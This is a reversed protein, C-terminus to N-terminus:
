GVPGFVVTKSTRSRELDISLLFGGSSSSTACNSLWLLKGSPDFVFSVSESDCLESGFGPNASLTANLVITWDAAPRKDWVRLVLQGPVIASRALRFSGRGDSWLKPASAGILEDANGRPRLAVVSVNGFRLVPAQNDLLNAVQPPQFSFSTCSGCSGSFESACCPPVTACDFMVDRASFVDLQCIKAPIPGSFNTGDLMVTRLENVIGDSPIVGSLAPNFALNITATFYSRFWDAPFM